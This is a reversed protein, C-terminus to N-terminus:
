VFSYTYEIKSQQTLSSHRKLFKDTGKPSNPSHASASGAFCLGPEKGVGQGGGETQVPVHDAAAELLLMMM